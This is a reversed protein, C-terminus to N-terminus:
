KSTRPRRRRARARPKRPKSSMNRGKNAAWSFLNILLQDAPETSDAVGDFIGGEGEEEVDDYEDDEEDSESERDSGPDAGEGHSAAFMEELDVRPQEDDDLIEEIVEGLEEKTQCMAPNSSDEVPAITFGRGKRGRRIVVLIPQTIDYKKKPM